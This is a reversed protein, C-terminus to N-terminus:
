FEVFSIKAVDCKKIKRVSDYDNNALHAIPESLEVRKILYKM